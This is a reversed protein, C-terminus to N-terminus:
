PDVLTPASEPVLPFSNNRRPGFDAYSKEELIGSGLLLNIQRKIAARHDNSRYVSRALEIFRPGFDGGQECARIEDEIRWLAENVARLETTLGALEASEAITRDRAVELTELETRVNRLKAPDIMRGAKIQLITIKDILEGPAAEITVARVRSPIPALRRLENALRAFVPGWVMFEAQRFLRMTPYWPNDERSTMWRWDAATSLPLWTPVGLAGALHAVATDSTIFLDLNVMAAATDMFPGTQEDLRPGLDHIGFREGHAKLQEQGHNKQLSILRVGPIRALPEFYELPISRHRDGAYQPNGQWNIGVKFGDLSALERRWKEVLEPAPTLYPVLTPVSEPATGVLGPVTLLPAYVDYDPLPKGQPVLYDIGPCRNLLPILREPCELIV